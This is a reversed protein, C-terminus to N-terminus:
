EVREPWDWRYTTIPFGDSDKMEPDFKSVSTKWGDFVGDYMIKLNICTDGWVATIIAPAKTQYNNFLECESKTPYYWVIRGITPKM